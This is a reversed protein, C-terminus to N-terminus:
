QHNSSTVALQQMYRANIAIEAMSRKSATAAGEVEGM